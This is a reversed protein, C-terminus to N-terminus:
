GRHLLEVVRGAREIGATTWPELSLTIHDVGTARFTLLQAAVEEPTGTIGPRMQTPIAGEPGPLAIYAGATRRVSSPDRDVDHCAVDFEALREALSAADTLWVANFADAYRAAMRLVRPQRGGIWIPPGQPRPGRPSLFCDRAHHYRGTFDVRGDRLLGTVIALYEAFRTGLHDFPYGFARYEPENWGAGLGLILRGGSVEDLTDAMKALLAPNRFSVCAVFTGIEIRETAVALATLLTWAEWAGRREGPHGAALIPGEYFMHDDVWITDFGVQEALRAYDRVERWGISRGVPAFVEGSRLLLGVRM